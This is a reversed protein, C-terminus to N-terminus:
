FSRISFFSLLKDKLTDMKLYCNYAELWRTGCLKKLSLTPINLSNLMDKLEAERTSSNSFYKNVGCLLKEVKKPIHKTCNKAIVASTHCVCNMVILNKQRDKLHTVFGKFKGLLVRMTARLELLITLIFIM